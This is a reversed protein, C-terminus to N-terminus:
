ARATAKARIAVLRTHLKRLEGLQGEVTDIFEALQDPGMPRSWLGDVVEVKVHPVREAEGLESDPIVELQASLLRRQEYKEFEESAEVTREQGYAQHHIDSPAATLYQDMEHSNECWITCTVTVEALDGTRIYKWTRPEAPPAPERVAMVKDALADATDLLRRLETTKPRVEEPAFDESRIYIMAPSNGDVDSLQVFGIDLLQEGGKDLVHHEHNFHDYHGPTTDTCIGPWVPCGAPETHERAGGEVLEDAYARPQGSAGARLDRSLPTEVTQDAVLHATAAALATAYNM